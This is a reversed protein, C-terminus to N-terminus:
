VEKLNFQYIFISLLHFSYNFEVNLVLFFLDAFCKLIFIILM